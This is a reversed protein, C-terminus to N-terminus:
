KPSLRSAPGACARIVPTIEAAPNHLGSGFLTNVATIEVQTQPGNGVFIADWYRVGGGELSLRVTKETPLDTKKLGPQDLKAAVCSAISQYDGRIVETIQPVQSLPPSSTGCAACGLALTLAFVPRM